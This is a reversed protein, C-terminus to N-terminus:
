LFDKTTRELPVFSLFTYSDYAIAKINATLACHDEAQLTFSKPHFGFKDSRM